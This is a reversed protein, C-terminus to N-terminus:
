LQSKGGQEWSRACALTIVKSFSNGFFILFRLLSTKMCFVMDGAVIVLSSFGSRHWGTAQAWHRQIGPFVGPTRPM